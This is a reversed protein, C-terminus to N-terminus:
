WSAREPGFPSWKGLYPQLEEPEPDVAAPPQFNAIPDLDAAYNEIWALWEPNLDERGTARAAAVM